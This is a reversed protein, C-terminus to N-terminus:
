HSRGSDVTIPIICSTSDQSSNSDRHSNGSGENDSIKETEKKVRIIANNTTEPNGVTIAKVRQHPPKFHSTIHPIIGNGDKGSTLLFFILGFAGFVMATLIMARQEEAVYLILELMMFLAVHGTIFLQKSEM